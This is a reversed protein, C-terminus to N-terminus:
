QSWQNRITDTLLSKYKERWLLCAAPGEEPLCHHLSHRSQDPGLVWNGFSRWDPRQVPKTVAPGHFDLELEPKVWGQHSFSEYYDFNADNVGGWTTRFRYSNREETSCLLYRSTNLSGFRKKQKKWLTPDMMENIYNKIYFSHESVFLYFSIQKKLWKQHKGYHKNGM